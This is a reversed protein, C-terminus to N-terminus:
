AGENPIAGDRPAEVAELSDETTMREHREQDSRIRYQPSNDRSPLTGTVRYLEATRLSMGFSSKLRVIQGIAFRHAAPKQKNRVM